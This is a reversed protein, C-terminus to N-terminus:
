ENDKLEELLNPNEYINGIVECHKGWDDDTFEPKVYWSGGDVEDSLEFGDTGWVVILHKPLRKEPFCGVIDGEYIEKGNKDKLGTFQMVKWKDDEVLDRLSGDEKFDDQYIMEKKNRYTSWFRFKIERM